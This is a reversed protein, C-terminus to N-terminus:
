LTNLMINFQLVGFNPPVHGLERIKSAIQGRHHSGHNILHMLMDSVAMKFSDGSLTKGEVIRAWGIQNTKNIFDLAIQYSEDNYKKLDSLSFVDWITFDTTEGNLMALRMFQANLNHSLMKFIYGDKIDFEEISKILESTAWHSYQFQKALFDNM